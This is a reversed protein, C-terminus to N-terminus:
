KTIATHFATYAPKPTGNYNLLGFFNQNSSTSTGSDQYTYWFFAGLWPTKKYQTIADTLMNTQLANSVHDAHLAYNPNSTTALAGPGNTPAGFETIWIQKAGDGNAIMVSRISQPLDAMMSWGSWTAVHSPLAPFSYPHYGLVDFYPKAGDAYMDSLFMVQPISARSNDLSGLGGSVITATPEIQKIAHYSAQLLRTYDLPSPAPQWFGELNPENWIEWADIDKPAYRKTVVAVFKAFQSTSAPACQQSSSCDTPRAWPPTYALTALIKLGHQNAAAVIRDLASWDYQNANQPQIDAWSVDIRIWTAGTAAISSLENNLKSSNLGLLTDGLALGYYLNTKAVAASPRSVSALPRKPLRTVKPHHPHSGPMLFVAYLLLGCAIIAALMAAKPLQNWYSKFRKRYQTPRRGKKAKNTKVSYYYTM